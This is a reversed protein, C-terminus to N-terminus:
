LFSQYKSTSTNVKIAGNIVFQEQISVKFLLFHEYNKVLLSRDFGSNQNLDSVLVVLNWIYYSVYSIHPIKEM